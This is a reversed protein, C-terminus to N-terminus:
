GIQSGIETAQLSILWAIRRALREVLLCGIRKRSRYPQRRHVREWYQALERLKFGAAYLDFLDQWEKGLWPYVGRIDLLVSNTAPLYYWNKIVQKILSLSYTDRHGM